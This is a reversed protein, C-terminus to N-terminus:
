HITPTKTPSNIAQKSEQKSKKLHHISKPTLNIIAHPIQKSHFLIAELLNIIRCSLSFFSLFVPSDM